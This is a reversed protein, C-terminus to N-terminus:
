KSTKTTKRTTTSKVSPSSEDDCCESGSEKCCCWVHRHFCMFMGTLFMGFIGLGSLTLITLLTALLLLVGGVIERRHTSLCERMKCGNKKTM